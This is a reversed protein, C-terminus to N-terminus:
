RRAGSLHDAVLAAGGVRNANAQRCRSPYAGATEALCASSRAPPRVVGAPWRLRRLGKASSSSPRLRLKPRCGRGGRGLPLDALRAGGVGGGLDRRVVLAVEARQGLDDVRSSDEGAFHGGAGRWRRGAARRGDQLRPGPGGAAAGRAQAAWRHLRPNLRTCAGECACRAGNGRVGSQRSSRPVAQAACRCCRTSEFLVCRLGHRLM